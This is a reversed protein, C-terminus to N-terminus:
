EHQFKLSTYKEKRLSRSTKWEFNRRMETCLRLRNYTTTNIEAIVNQESPRCIRYHSCNFINLSCCVNITGVRELAIRGHFHVM